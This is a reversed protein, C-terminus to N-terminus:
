SVWTEVKLHPVKNFHKLNNTILKAHISKAHAAIMLDMNGIPTGQTELTNRLQGYYEAATTDWDLIELHTLFDNLLNLNKKKQTSKEIGHMLEAYTITSIVINEPQIKKLHHYVSEPKRKLIYICIDTDLMYRM